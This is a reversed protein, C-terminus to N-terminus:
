TGVKSGDDWVFQGAPGVPFHARCGVCFTGSYFGPDRAYTEALSQGMTTAAGCVEHVYTRRVPRVFGKAREEASLVVYGKQQGTAPNINRHDQTVPTGDTLSTKTRDVSAALIVKAAADQAAVEETKGSALLRIADHLRERQQNLAAVSASEPDKAQDRMALGFEDVMALIRDINM